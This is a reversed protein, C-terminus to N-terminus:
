VKYNAKNEFSVGIKYIAVGVVCGSLNLLLDLYSIDRTPAFVQSFEDLASFVFTILLTYAAAKKFVIKKGTFLRMWLFALLIFFPFHMFNQIADFDLEIHLCKQIDSKLAVLVGFKQKILCKNMPITSLILILLM